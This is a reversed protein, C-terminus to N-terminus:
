QVSCCSCVHKKMPHARVQKWGEHLELMRQTAEEVVDQLAPVLDATHLCTHVM